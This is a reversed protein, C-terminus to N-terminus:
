AYVGQRPWLVPCNTHLKPFPTDTVGILLRPTYRTRPPIDESVMSKSWKESKMRECPSVSIERYGEMKLPHDESPIAEHLCDSHM